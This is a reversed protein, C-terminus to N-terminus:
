IIIYSAIYGLSRLIPLSTISHCILLNYDLGIKEGSWQLDAPEPEAYLHSQDVTDCSNKLINDM